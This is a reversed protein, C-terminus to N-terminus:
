EGKVRRKVEELLHPFDKSVGQYIYKALWPSENIAAIVEKMQAEDQETFKIEGTMLKLEEENINVFEKYKNRYHNLIENPDILNLAMGTLVMEMLNHSYLRIRLDNKHSKVTADTIWLQKAIEEATCNLALLRLVEIQRDTIIKL